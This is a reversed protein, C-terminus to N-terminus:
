REWRGVVESLSRQPGVGLARLARRLGDADPATLVGLRGCVTIVGDLAAPAHCVPCTV